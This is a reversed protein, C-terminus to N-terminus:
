GVGPPLVTLWPAGKGSLDLRFLYEGPEAAELFLDEGQVDLAQKAGPRVLAEDFRAGLHVAKGELDGIRFQHLGRELKVRAQLVGAQAPALAIAPQGRHIPGQLYLGQQLMAGNAPLKPLPKRLAPLYHAAVRDAIVQPQANARNMLVTITLRDDPLHLLYSTFGQWDGRHRVQRHGAETALEWGFGYAATRGGSLMAPKWMETKEARSLLREGDLALAWAAMDRATVYLSGDATTNQSPAVWRQNEFQGEYREYGAARGPVLDQESIVRANMHSPLLVRERLQDGWFKGGVKSCLIGLVQYGLNSYEHREGPAYKPPLRYASALLEAESYDKRLDIDPDIRDLGATHNLLQRVTIGRWSPPADALYTAVPADLALRGERVLLMVLTATFQKGMSATQFVTQANAPVRHELNAFGYGQLKTTAGKSVVAISVAPSHQRGMEARVIDDIRDAKASGPSATAVAIAALAISKIM